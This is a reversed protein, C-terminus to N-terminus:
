GIIGCIPNFLNDLFFRLQIHSIPIQLHSPISPICAMVACGGTFSRGQPRTRYGFVSPMLSLGAIITLAFDISQYSIRLSNLFVFCIIWNLQLFHHILPLIVLILCQWVEGNATHITEHTPYPSVLSLNGLDATIHNAAGSDTLWVHSPGSSCSSSSASNLGVHMAQMSPHQDIRHQASTVSVHQSPTPSSTYQLNQPPLHYSLQPSYCASTHVGIYNPGKDNYFCYLTTHNTRGCIHCKTHQPSSNGCFPTTHGESNCLQCIPLM